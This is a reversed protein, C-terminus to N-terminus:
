HLTRLKTYNFELLNIKPAATFAAIEIYNYM